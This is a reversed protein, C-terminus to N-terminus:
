FQGVTRLTRHPTKIRTEKQMDTQSTEASRDEINSIRKMDLAGIIRDFVIKM